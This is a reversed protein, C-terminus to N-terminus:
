IHTLSLRFYFKRSLFFFIEKRNKERRTPPDRVTTTIRVLLEPALNREEFVGKTGGEVKFFKEAECKRIKKINNM